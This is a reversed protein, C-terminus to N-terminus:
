GGRARRVGRTIFRTSYRCPCPRTRANSISYHDNGDRSGLKLRDIRDHGLQHQIEELTRTDGCLIKRDDCKPGDNGIGRMHKAGLCNHHITHCNHDDHPLTFRSMPGTCDFTHTHCNTSNLLDEEFQWKNYEGRDFIMYGEERGGGGAELRSLGCAYKRTDESCTGGVCRLDDCTAM